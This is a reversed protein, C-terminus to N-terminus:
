QEPMVTYPTEMTVSFATSLTNGCYANHNYVASGYGNTLLIIPWHCSTINLTGSNYIAGGFGSAM